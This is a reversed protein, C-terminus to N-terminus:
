KPAAEQGASRLVLGWISPPMSVSRFEACILPKEQDFRLTYVLHKVSLEISSKGPACVNGTGYQRIASPVPGKVGNGIVLWLRARGCPCDVKDIARRKVKETLRATAWCISVLSYKRLRFLQHDSTTFFESNLDLKSPQCHLTTTDESLMVSWNAWEDWVM